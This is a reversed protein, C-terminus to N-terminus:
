CCSCDRQPAFPEQGSAFVVFHSDGEGRSRVIEGGDGSVAREVAEDLVDLSAPMWKPQRWQQTSGEVDTLFIARLQERDGDPDVVDSPNM